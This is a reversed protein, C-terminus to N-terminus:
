LFAMFVHSLFNLCFFEDDFMHISGPFNYELLDSTQLFLLLFTQL